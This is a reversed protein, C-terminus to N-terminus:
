GINVWTLRSNEAAALRKEGPSFKVRSMAKCLSRCISWVFFHNLSEEDDYIDKDDSYLEYAFAKYVDFSFKLLADQTTFINDTLSALLAKSNENNKKISDIINNHIDVSTLSKKLLLIM